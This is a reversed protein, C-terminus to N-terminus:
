RAWLGRGAARAAAEDAAYAADTARAWGSRVMAANVDRGKPGGVRCVAPRPENGPLLTCDVWHQEIAEALAFAAQVGCRVDGCMDHDAPADIGALRIHRGAIELTGGDVVRARGTLDEAASPTALLLAATVTLLAGTRSRLAM